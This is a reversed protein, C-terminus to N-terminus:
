RELFEEPKMVSSDIGHAQPHSAISRFRFIKRLLDKDLYKALQIGKTTFARERRPQVAQGNILDKHVKAFSATSSILQGFVPFQRLSYNTTWVNSHTKRYNVPERQGFRDDFQSRSIPGDKDKMINFSQFVEFDRVNQAARNSCGLRLQVFSPHFHTAQESL